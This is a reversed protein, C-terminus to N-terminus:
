RLCVSLLLNHTLFSDKLM